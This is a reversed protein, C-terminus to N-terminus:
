RRIFELVQDVAQQVGAEGGNMKAVVHPLKIGAYRGRDDLYHSVSRCGGTAGRELRDRIRREIEEPTDNYQCWVVKLRGGGQKVAEVLFDQATPRSYTAVVVLPFGQLLNATVATHMVTYAVIMRRGERAKAEPSRYPDPEQAPACHAPGEDIDLAHIGLKKSLERALTSKGTTPLGAVAIVLPSTETVPKDFLGNKEAWTMALRFSALSGRGSKSKEPESIFSACLEREFQEPTMEVVTMGDEPEAQKTCGLAVYIVDSGFLHIGGQTCTAIRILREFGYGTEELLERAAAADFPEAPNEVMGSPLHLYTEDTDKKTERIAVLKGASTFGAIQVGDPVEMRLFTKGNKRKVRLRRHYPDIGADTLLHTVDEWVPDILNSTM